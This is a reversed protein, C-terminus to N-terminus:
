LRAGANGALTLQRLDDDARLGKGAAAIVGGEVIGVVAVQLPLHIDSGASAFIQPVYFHGDLSIQVAALGEFRLQALRDEVGADAAAREIRHRQNLRARRRL